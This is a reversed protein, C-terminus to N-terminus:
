DFTPTADHVTTTYSAHLVARLVAYYQLTVANHSLIKYCYYTRGLKTFRPQNHRYECKDNMYCADTCYREMFCSDDYRNWVGNVGYSWEWVICQLMNLSCATYGIRISHQQQTAAATECQQEHKIDRLLTRPLLRLVAFM